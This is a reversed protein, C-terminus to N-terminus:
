LPNVTNTVLYDSPTQYIVLQFTSRELASGYEGPVNPITASNNTSNDIGEISKIVIIKLSGGVEVWCIRDAGGANFGYKKTPTAEERQM